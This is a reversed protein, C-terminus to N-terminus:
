KKESKGLYGRERWWGVVPYVAIYYCDCLESASINLMMDSHISGVDRNQPGLYWRNSDSSGDVYDKDDERM